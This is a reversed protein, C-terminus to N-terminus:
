LREIIINIFRQPLTESEHVVSKIKQKLDSPIPGFEKIIRCTHPLICTVVESTNLYSPYSLFPLDIPLLKIQSNANFKRRPESSILFFLPKEKCVCIAFKNKPKPRAFKVNLLYADGCIFCM